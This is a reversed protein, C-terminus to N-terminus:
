RQYKVHLAELILSSISHVDGAGMTMILDGPQAAEVVASLVKSLNNEFIGNKMLDTISRGSIDLIPAESAAYIDLM